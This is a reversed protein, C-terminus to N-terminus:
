IADNSDYEIISFRLVKSNNKIISALSNPNKTCVEFVYDVGRSTYNRSKLRYSRSEKKIVDILFEEIDEESNIVVIFPNTLFSGGFANTIILLITVVANTLVCLEYLQCGCTIGNFISWLLYLMNIPDKIATRFRIIALAGITGLTVIVSSQLAMVISAIFFPIILIAIHFPRDYLTRKSVVRYVIAEYVSMILTMILMSLIVDVSAVDAGIRSSISTIINTIINM